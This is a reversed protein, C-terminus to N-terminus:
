AAVRARAIGAQIDPRAAYEVSRALAQCELSCYVQLRDSTTTREFVVGCGPRKCVTRETHRQRYRRREAIRQCRESCFRKPSGGGKRPTVLESCDDLACTRKQASVGRRDRPAQDPTPSVGAAGSLEEWGRVVVTREPATM